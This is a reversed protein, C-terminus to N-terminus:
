RRRPPAQAYGVPARSSCRARSAPSSASAGGPGASRSGRAANAAAASPASGASRPSSYTKRNSLTADKWEILLALWGGNHVARVRLEKIATNPHNPLTVTQALMTVPM